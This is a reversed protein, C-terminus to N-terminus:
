KSGFDYECISCKTSQKIYYQQRFQCNLLWCALVFHLTFVNKIQIFIKICHSEDVVLAYLFYSVFCFLLYTGGVIITSIFKHCAKM